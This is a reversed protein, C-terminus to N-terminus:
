QGATASITVPIRTENNDYNSEPLYHDGNILVSLIYNGAPVGTIDIWQCDIDNPYVDEYGVSLGQNTCSYLTSPEPPPPTLWPIPYVDELCFGQKHGVAVVTTGDTAYLTYKGVGRFHYHQHCQSWTFCANDAPNGVDLDATGINMTGTDFRLLTRVGTQTICGEVIACSTPEFSQQQVVVSAILDEQDVALDPCPAGAECASLGCTAPSGVVDTDADFPPPGADTAADPTGSVHGGTPLSGSATTADGGAAVGADDAPPTASTSSTGDSGCAGTALVSAGGCLLAIWVLDRRNFQM